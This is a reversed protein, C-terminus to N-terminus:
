CVEQLEEKILESVLSIFEYVPILIKDSFYGINFRKNLAVISGSDTAKKLAHRMLSHINNSNTDFCEAGSNLLNKCNLQPGKMKQYILEKLFYYGKLNPYIGAEQLSKGIISKIEFENKNM